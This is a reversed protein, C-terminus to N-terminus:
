DSIQVPQERYIQELVAREFKYHPSAIRHAKLAQRVKPPFTLGNVMVVFAKRQGSATTMFGALNSVNQLTGTKATVNKVLPPMQVSGRSGLTGSMGAVPLKAILQLQADNRAIFDLVELM